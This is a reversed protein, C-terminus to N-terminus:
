RVVTSVCTRFRTAYWQKPYTNSHSRGQNPNELHRNIPEEGTLDEYQFIGSKSIEPLKQDQHFEAKLISSHKENLFYGFM